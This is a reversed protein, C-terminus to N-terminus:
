LEQHDQSMIAHAFRTVNMEDSEARDQREIEAFFAERQREKLRELIRTDKRANALNAREQALITRHAVIAGETELVGRRLRVMWHRGAKLQDVDILDATLWDRMAEVQEAIRAELVEKQQEITRIKRLRSAVVRKQEDERQQRLRLLTELRFTYRKVMCSLGQAKATM